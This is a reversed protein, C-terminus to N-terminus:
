PCASVLAHAHNLIAKRERFGYPKNPRVAWSQARFNLPPFFLLPNIPDSKTKTTKKRKKRENKEEKKEEKKRTKRKRKRENKEEKKKRPHVTLGFKRESLATEGGGCM